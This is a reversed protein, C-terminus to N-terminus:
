ADHHEEGEGEHEDEAEEYEPSIEQLHGHLSIDPCELVGQAHDQAEHDCPDDIIPPACAAMLALIVLATALARKM